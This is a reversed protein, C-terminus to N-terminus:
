ILVYNHKIHLKCAATIAATVGTGDSIKDDIYTYVFYSICVCMM